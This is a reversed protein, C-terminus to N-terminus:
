SIPIIAKDTKYYTRNKIASCDCPLTTRPKKRMDIIVQRQKVWYGGSKFVVLSDINEDPKEDYNIYIEPCKLKYKLLRIEKKTLPLSDLYNEGIEIEYDFLPFIKNAITELEESHIMANRPVNRDSACSVLIFVAILSIVKKM